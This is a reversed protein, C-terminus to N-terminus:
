SRAGFRTRAAPQSPPAATPLAERSPALSSRGERGPLASGRAPRRARVQRRHPLRPEQRHPPREDPHLLSELTAFFYPMLNKRPLSGADSRLKTIGAQHTRVMAKAESFLHLFDELVIGAEHMLNYARSASARVSAEDGLERGLDTLRLVLVQYDPDLRLQAPKELLADADRHIERPIEKSIEIATEQESTNQTHTQQPHATGLSATEDARVETGQGPASRDSPTFSGVKEPHRVRSGRPLASGRKTEPM